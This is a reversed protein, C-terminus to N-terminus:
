NNISYTGLNFDLFIRYDGATVVINDGGDDLTGDAGTDGFNVGWDENVRFKIEGDVLTVIEAIWIGPNVETFTFDPGDNGWDNYGSGVIGFLDASEITYTNNNLDLSIAYFGATTVINDGGDELTGDAGTDGFNTGWDNNFRFKMEGDLLKVGLKFTDTTYDYHFKADPGDNGWDNWASGVVGWSFQEITYTNANLDLVIKYHGATSVINAGDAELTGDAGDDGINNGWDNNERFKIEGDLLTVYAVLVNDQDTTYFPADAYAGWNNYGSGVVGWSSVSVGSSPATIEPITVTLTQTDSFTETEGQTGVSARLRFYLNGTNPEATDPDNDLGAETALSKMQGISIGIENETTSGLVTFTDFAENISGHIEFDIITQVEFDPTVWVFREALNATTQNTLVYEDQFSNVFELKEQPAQAIFEFRDDDECSNFGISALILLALITIKKM